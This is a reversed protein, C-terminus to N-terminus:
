EVRKKLEELEEYLKNCEKTLNRNEKEIEDIELYDKLYNIFYAGAILGTCFGTIWIEM